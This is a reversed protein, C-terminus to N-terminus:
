GREFYPALKGALFPFEETVDVRVFQKDTVDTSRDTFAFVVDVISRTGTLRSPRVEVTTLSSNAAFKEAAKHYIGPYRVSLYNLARDADTAGANDNMQTIRSFIEEVAANWQDSQTEEPRPIASLLTDVDFSYVQDFIVIPVMLGNCLEPPAVPGLMGIVVDLDTRRPTPRVADILLDIDGPVHPQLIYTDLGEVTLVWCLQRALYRNAPQSLLSQLAQRDTLGSADSQGAVQAFEKEVALTPFRPEIQGLAYVFAPAAYEGPPWASAPGAVPGQAPALGERADTAPPPSEMPAPQPGSAPLVAASGAAQTATPAELADPYETM